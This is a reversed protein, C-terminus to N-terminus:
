NEPSDSVFGLSRLHDVSEKSVDDGLLDGHFYRRKSGGETEVEVLPASVFLGDDAKPKAAAM